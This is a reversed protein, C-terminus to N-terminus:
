LTKLFAILDAQKGVDCVRQAPMKTTASVDGSLSKVAKKSDCMWAALNAENWVWSGQKLAPSYKMDPMQGVKRGFVGKLGPGVKKRENFNHCTQCKRALSKGNVPNGAALVSVVSGAPKPAESAVRSKEVQSTAAVAGKTKAPKVSKKVAAPAVATMSKSPAKVKQQQTPVAMSRASAEPTVTQQTSDASLQGSLEGAQTQKDQRAKILAQKIQEHNAPMETKKVAVTSTAAAPQSLAHKPKPAEEGGCAVLAVSVLGAGVWQVTKM